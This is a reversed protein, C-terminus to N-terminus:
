LGVVTIVTVAVLIGLRLQLPITSEGGGTKQAGQNTKSAGQGNANTTSPVATNSAAATIPHETSGFTWTFTSSSVPTSLVGTNTLAGTGNKLPNGPQYDNQARRADPGFGMTRDCDYDRLFPMCANWDHPGFLLDNWYDATIYTPYAQSYDARQKDTSLRDLNTTNAACEVVQDVLQVQKKTIEGVNCVCGGIANDPAPWFPIEDLDLEDEDCSYVLQDVTEGYACSYVKNWCSTATCDIMDQAEKCECANTCDRGLVKGPRCKEYCDSSSTYTRHVCSEFGSPDVCLSANSYM